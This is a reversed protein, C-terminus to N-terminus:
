LRGMGFLADLVSQAMQQEDAVTRANGEDAPDEIALADLHAFIRQRAYERRDDGKLDVDDLGALDEAVLRRLSAALDRSM